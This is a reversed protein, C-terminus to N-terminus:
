EELLARLKSRNEETLTCHDYLTPGMKSFVNQLVKQNISRLEGKKEDLFSLCVPLVHKVILNPKTDYVNDVIDLLKEM